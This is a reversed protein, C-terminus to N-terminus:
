DRRWTVGGLDEHFPVCEELGPGAPAYGSRDTAALQAM